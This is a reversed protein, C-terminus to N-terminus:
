NAAATFSYSYYNGTYSASCNPVPASADTLNNAISCALAGIVTHALSPMCGVWLLFGLRAM